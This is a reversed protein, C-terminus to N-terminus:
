KQKDLYKKAIKKLVEMEDADFETLYKDLAENILQNMPKSLLLSMMKVEEYKETPLELNIRRVDRKAKTKQSIHSEAAAKFKSM